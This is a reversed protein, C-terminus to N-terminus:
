WNLTKKYLTANEKFDKPFLGSNIGYNILYQFSCDTKNRKSFHYLNWLYHKTSKSVCVRHIDYRFINFETNTINKTLKLYCIYDLYAFLKDISCELTGNHFSNDYWNQNYDVVYMTNTLDKDFRIKELIQNIFEARKVKITKKWQFLAFGGGIVAFLLPVLIQWNDSIFSCFVM